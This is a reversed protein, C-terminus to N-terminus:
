HGLTGPALPARPHPDVANDFHRKSWLIQAFGPFSFETDDDARIVPYWSAKRSDRITTRARNARACAPLYLRPPGQAPSCQAAALRAPIHFGRLPDTRNLARLTSPSRSGRPRSLQCKVSELSSDMLPGTQMEGADVALGPGRLFFTIQSSAQDQSSIRLLLYYDSVGTSSDPLM